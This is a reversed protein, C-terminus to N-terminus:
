EESLSPFSPSTHPYWPTSTAVSAHEHQYVGPSLIRANGPKSKSGPFEPQEPSSGTTASHWPATGASQTM